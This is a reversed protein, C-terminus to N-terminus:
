SGLYRAVVPDLTRMFQEVSRSYIDSEGLRQNIDRHSMNEQLISIRSGLSKAKVAFKEAQECSAERRTSCVLLMPKTARTLMHYPSGTRWSARDTGFAHDYLPLHPVKAMIQEVDFAASDLAVTGLWPTVGAGLTLDSSTSILSVLHAGASHGMLIFKSRDGGWDAAQAQATVLARVVDRAQDIPTAQPLMRYNTSVVIFGRGVWRRVKGEVVSRMAKDGVRWGGGHVMFIVPAPETRNPDIMQPSYVDFRQAPDNGYAIDRTVRVHTADFAATGTEDGVDDLVELRVYRPRREFTREPGEGASAAQLVFLSAIAAIAAHHKRLYPIM